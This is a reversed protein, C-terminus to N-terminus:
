IAAGPGLGSGFTSFTYRTQVMQAFSYDKLFELTKEMQAIHKIGLERQAQLPGIVGATIEEMVNPGDAAVRKFRGQLSRLRLITHDISAISERAKDIEQQAGRNLAAMIDQSLLDVDVQTAYQMLKNSVWGLIMKKVPDDQQSVNPMSGDRDYAERLKADSLVTYAQQIAEFNERSGGVDPHNSKVLRRHAAKIATATASRPLGLIAYLDPTM